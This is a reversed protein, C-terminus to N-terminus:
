FWSWYQQALEALSPAPPPSPNGGDLHERWVAVNRRYDTHGDLSELSQMAALQLAPDRDDLAPRLAQPAEFGKFKGLERAAVIRVDIDADATVARSLAQFGDPTPSQGLAKCAIVRVSSSPDTTATMIAQQAIPTHFVALTRVFESRLIPSQEESLRAALQAATEEREAPPMKSAKARLDALDAVKRHFTTIRQEDEAWQKRAWPNLHRMEPVPGDACGPLLGALAACLLLATRALSARVIHPMLFYHM